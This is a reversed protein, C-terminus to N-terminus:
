DSLTESLFTYKTDQLTIGKRLVEPIEQQGEFWEEHWYETMEVVGGASSVQGGRGDEFALYVTGDKEGVHELDGHESLADELTCVSQPMAGSKAFFLTSRRADFFLLRDAYTAYYRREVSIQRPTELIQAEDPMEISATGQPPASVSVDTRPSDPQRRSFTTDQRRAMYFLICLSIFLVGVGIYETSLRRKRRLSRRSRRTSDGTMEGVTEQVFFPPFYVPDANSIAEVAALSENAWFLVARELAAESRGSDPMRSRALLGRYTELARSIRENGKKPTIGVAVSLSVPPLQAAYRLLLAVRDEPRLRGLIRLIRADTGQLSAREFARRQRREAKPLMSWAIDQAVIFLAIKAQVFSFSMGELAFFVRVLAIRAAEQAMEEERAVLYAAYYAVGATREFFQTAQELKLSDVPYRSM